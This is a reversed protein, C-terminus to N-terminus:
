RGPSVSKMKKMERLNELLEDEKSNRFIEEYLKVLKEALAANEFYFALFFTQPQSPNIVEIGVSHRDVVVFSFPVEGERMQIDSNRAFEEYAGLARPNSMLNGLLQLKATNGENGARHLINVKHGQKAANAAIEATRFDMYRTAVYLERKTSGILMATQMSLNLWDTFVRIPTLDPLGTVARLVLLLEDAFERSSAPKPDGDCLEKMREATKEILTKGLVNTEGADTISYM